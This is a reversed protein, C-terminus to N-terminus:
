RPNGALIYVQRDVVSDERKLPFAVLFALFLVFFSIAAFALITM